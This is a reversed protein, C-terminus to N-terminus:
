CRENDRNKAYGNRHKNSKLVMQVDHSILQLISMGNPYLLIISADAVRNHVGKVRWCQVVVSTDDEINGMKSTGAWHSNAFYNVSDM